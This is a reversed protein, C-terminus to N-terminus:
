SSKHARVSRGEDFMEITFQGTNIIPWRKLVKELLAQQRHEIEEVGWKEYEAIQRTEEISSKIYEKKKEDFLKNSIIRNKKGDLLIMNGFRVHYEKWSEHEIQWDKPKKPLIHELHVDKGRNTIKTETHSYNYIEVLLLKGVGEKPSFKAFSSSVDSDSDTTAYIESLIQDPTKLGKSLSLAWESYKRENKNATKKGIVQNRLIQTEIAKVISPM